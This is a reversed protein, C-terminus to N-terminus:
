DMISLESLIGSMEATDWEFVDAITNMTSAPMKWTQSMKLFSRAIDLIFEFEPRMSGFHAKAIPSLTSLLKLSRSYIVFINEDKM